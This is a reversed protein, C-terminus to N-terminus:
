ALRLAQTATGGKLADVLGIGGAADFGALWAKQNTPQSVKGPRQRPFEREFAAQVERGSVVILAMANPEEMARKRAEALRASLRTVAGRCFAHNWPNKWEGTPAQMKSASGALKKWEANAVQTVARDLYTYLYQVVEINYQKGVISVKTTGNWDLVRCFNNIAVVNILVKRWIVNQKVKLDVDARKYGSDEEQATIEALDLNHKLLIEQIRQAALAAEHENPSSSLALLNKITTMLEERTRAAM